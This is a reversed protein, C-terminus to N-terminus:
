PSEQHKQANIDPVRLNREAHEIVLFQNAM